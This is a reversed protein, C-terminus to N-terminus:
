CLCYLLLIFLCAFTGVQRKRLAESEDRLKDEKEKELRMEEDLLEQPSCVAGDAPLDCLLLRVDDFCLDAMPDMRSVLFANWLQLSFEDGLTLKFLLLGDKVTILNDGTQDLAAFDWRVKDEQIRRRELEEMVKSSLSCLRVENVDFKIIHFSVNQM